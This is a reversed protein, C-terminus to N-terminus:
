MRLLLIKLLFPYYTDFNWANAGYDLIINAVDDIKLYFLLHKVFFDRLQNVFVIQLLTHEQFCIPNTHPIFEYLLTVFKMSVREGHLYKSLSSNTELHLNEIFRM